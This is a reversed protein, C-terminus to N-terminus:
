LTEWLKQQYFKYRGFNRKKIQHTIVYTLLQILKFGELKLELIPQLIEFDKKNTQEIIKKFNEFWKQTAKEYAREIFKAVLKNNEFGELIKKVIYDKTYNRGISHRVKIIETKEKKTVKNTGIFVQENEKVKDLNVKVRGVMGNTCIQRLVYFYIQEDTKSGCVNIGWTKSGDYSNEIEVIPNLLSGDDDKIELPTDAVFPMFYQCYRWGTMKQHELEKSYTFDIGIEESADNLANLLQENKVLNYKESVIGVLKEEKPEELIIGITNEAQKYDGNKFYIPSKRVNYLLHEPVNKIM